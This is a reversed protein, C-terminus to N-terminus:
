WRKNVGSGEDGRLTQAMRRKAELHEIEDFRMKNPEHSRPQFDSSLDQQREAKLRISANEGNAKESGRVPVLTQANM